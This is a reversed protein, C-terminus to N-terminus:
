PLLSPNPTGHNAPQQTVLSVLQINNSRHERQINACWRKDVIDYVLLQASSFYTWRWIAGSEPRCGGGLSRVVSTMFQDVAPFPSSSRSYCSASVSLLLGGVARIVVNIVSIYHRLLLVRVVVTAALQFQCHCVVWLESSLM